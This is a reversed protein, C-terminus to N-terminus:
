KVRGSNRWWIKKVILLNKACCGEEHPKTLRMSHCMSHCMSSLKGTEDPKTHRLSVWLSSYNWKKTKQVIKWIKEWFKSIEDNYNIWNKKSIRFITYCKSYSWLQWLYLFMRISSNEKRPAMQLGPPLDRFVTSVALLM